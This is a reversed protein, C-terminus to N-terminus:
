KNNNYYVYKEYINNMACRCINEKEKQVEYQIEKYYSCHRNKVEIKYFLSNGKEVIFVKEKGYIINIMTSYIDYSTILNQQNENLYFDFNEANKNEYFKESNLILFLTPLVREIEYQEAFLINYLGPMHNGHDSLIILATNKLYNKEYFENLFDYLADDLYQIVEFSSEHGDNLALRLFKKNNKYSEWFKKGYEFMYDHIEKGYFCRRLLSYAGKFISYMSDRDIYSPDCFMAINEHDWNFFKRSSPEREPEWVEKSCMDVSHATIFGQSIFNQVINYGGGNFPSVGYFMPMANYFTGSSFAHYKMFQYGYYKKSSDNSETNKNNFKNKLFQEIFKSTKPLKRIFHARSVADLFIMLVNDFLSGDKEMNKRSNALSENYNVNVNIKGLYKKKKNKKNNKIEQFELIIEPYQEKKLNQPLNDMDLVNDMILKSFNKPNTDENVDFKKDTTIPFGFRLTNKLIPKNIYNILVERSNLERNFNSEASCNVKMIKNLNLFNNLYTMHCVQPRLIQCPYKVDDIIKVNNLGNEWGECAKSLKKLYNYRLIIIIILLVNCFIMRNWFKKNRLILAIFLALFYIITMFITMLFFGIINYLGHSFLTTGTDSLFLIIMISILHIFHLKTLKQLIIIYIALSFFSSSLACCNFLFYYFAINSNMLCEVQTGHCGGLSLYYFIYSTISLFIVFINLKLVDKEYLKTKAFYKKFKQLPNTKTIQIKQIKQSNVVLSTEPSDVATKQRRVIKSM